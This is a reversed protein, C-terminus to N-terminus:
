KLREPFFFAEIRLFDERKSKVEDFTRSLLACEALIEQLMDGALKWAVFEALAGFISSM